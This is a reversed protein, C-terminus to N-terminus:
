GDKLAHASAGASSGWRSDSFGMISTIDVLFEAYRMLHILWGRERSQGTEVYDATECSTQGGVTKRSKDWNTRGVHSAARAMLDSGEFM